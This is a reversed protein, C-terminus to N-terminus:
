QFLQSFFLFALNEVVFRFQHYQQKRCRKKKVEWGTKVLFDMACLVNVVCLVFRWYYLFLM